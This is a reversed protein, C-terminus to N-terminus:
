APPSLSDRIYVKGEEVGPQDFPDVGMMTGTHATLCAMAFYLAGLSRESLDDLRWTFNPRNQNSLVKAIAQYEVMLLEQLTHGELLRFAPYERSGGELKPITVEDAVKDVTMFGTIKDNPGDRLLQLISHQDIAGCAALPTFGKGDKGLSEGWLQVFWDGVSRLRTSYPMCVHTPHSEALELLHYTLQVIPNKEPAVKELHDRVEQAGKLLAHSDLGALEAIFLGVPTFISFRGGISPHILLTQLKEQQAFKRLDGRVPDTLAIVQAAWRPKGLWELALLLQAMTEFTTGSKTIAVVLTSEPKLKALTGNWDYPDPNEQFHFRLGSNVRDALANLLCIPGLSSGGIGLVLCDSYRKEGLLKRALTRSPEAQSLEPNSAAKYFGLEGSDIRAALKGRADLARAIGTSDLPRGKLGTWDLTLPASGFRTATIHAM